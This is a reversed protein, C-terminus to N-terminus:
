ISKSPAKIEGAVRRDRIKLTREIEQELFVAQELEPFSSSIRKLTNDRLVANVRFYTYTRKKKTIKRESVFLQEIMSSDITLEPWGPLPAHRVTLLREDACITTENIFFAFAGYLMCVYALLFGIFLLMSKPGTLQMHLTVVVFFMVIGLVIYSEARRWQWSIVTRSDTKAFSFKQPKAAVPRERIVTPAQSAFVTNINAEDSQQVGVYRPENATNRTKTLDYLVGCNSCHVIALRRDLGDVSFASGCSQCSLQYMDNHHLLYPLKDLM